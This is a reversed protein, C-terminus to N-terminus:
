RDKIDNDVVDGTLILHHQLRIDPVFRIPLLTSQLNHPPVLPDARQLKRSVERGTARKIKSQEMAVNRRRIM